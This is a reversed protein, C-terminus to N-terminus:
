DALWVFRFGPVWISLRAEWVCWRAPLSGCLVRGCLDSGGEWVFCQSGGTCFSQWGAVCIVALRGYLDSLQTEDREAM